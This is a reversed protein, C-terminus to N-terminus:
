PERPPSLTRFQHTWPDIRCIAQYSCQDCSTTLGRRYPALDINGALIESGMRRLSAEASDLLLFFRSPELAESCQKNIAGNATRRYNFQDGQPHGPRADLWHLLSSDFRGVHRYALKRASDPNQLAAARHDQREYRGRLNVYFVGAPHLEPAGFLRRTGVWHRLVSLYSILQLQLGNHM